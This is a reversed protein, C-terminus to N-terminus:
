TATLSGTRCLFATPIYSYPSGWFVQGGSYIEKPREEALHRGKGFQQTTEFIISGLTM